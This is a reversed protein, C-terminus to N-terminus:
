ETKQLLEKIYLVTDVDAIQKDIETQDHHSCYTGVVHMAIMACPGCAVMGCQAGELASGPQASDDGLYSGILAGLAAPVAAASLVACRIGCYHEKRWKKNAKNKQKERNEKLQKLEEYSAAGLLNPQQFLLQEKAPVAFEMANRLAEWRELPISQVLERIKPDHHLVLVSVNKEHLEHLRDTLQRIADFDDGEHMSMSHAAHINFPLLLTVLLLIMM